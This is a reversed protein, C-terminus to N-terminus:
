WLAFHSIPCDPDWGDDGHSNLSSIGKRWDMIEHQKGRWCWVGHEVCEVSGGNDRKWIPSKGFIRPNGLTFLFWVIFFRSSHKRVSIVLFCESVAVVKWTASPMSSRLLKLPIKFTSKSLMAARWQILLWLPNCVNQLSAAGSTGNPIFTTLRLGAWGPQSARM